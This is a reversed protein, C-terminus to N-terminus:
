DEGLSVWIGFAGMGFLMGLPVTIFFLLGIGAAHDWNIFGDPSRQSWGLWYLYAGTGVLAVFGGLLGAGISQAMKTMVSGFKEDRNDDPPKRNMERRVDNTM